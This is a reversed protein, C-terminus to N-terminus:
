ALVAWGIALVCLAALAAAHRGAPLAPVCGDRLGQFEREVHADRAAAELRRLQADRQESAPQALVEQYLDFIDSALDASDPHSM